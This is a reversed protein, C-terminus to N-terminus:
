VRRRYRVIALPAFVAIIASWGCCRTWWRSPWRAGRAHAGSGRRDCVDGPQGERVGPAVRADDDVPVFASSAFTLPLIIMFGWTNVRETSRATIGIFAMPWCMTSRRVGDRPRLAGIAGATAAASGSGWCWPSDPSSRAREVRDERRRRPDARRDRGVARDAVLPVSRHGRAPLRREARARDHLAPVRRVAGPHGAARVGPVGQELRRDCRRLRVRVAGPVDVAPDVDRGATRAHGQHAAPQAQRDHTHEHRREGAARAVTATSM